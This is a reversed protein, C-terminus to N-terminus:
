PASRGAAPNPLTRISRRATMAPPRRFTSPSRAAPTDIRRPKYGTAQGRRDDTRESLGTGPFRERGIQMALEFARGFVTAITRWSPRWRESAGPPCTRTRDSTGPSGRADQGEATWEGTEM